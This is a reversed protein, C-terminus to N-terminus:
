ALDIPQVSTSPPENPFTRGFETMLDDMELLAQEIDLSLTSLTPDLQYQLLLTRKSAVRDVRVQLDQVDIM